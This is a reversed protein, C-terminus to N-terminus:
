QQQQQQQQMAFPPPSRSDIAWTDLESLSQAAAADGQAAALRYWRVAEARDEATFTAVGYPYHFMAGLNRQAIAYGQAAALRYWRVAEAKDQVVGEGNAFMCGLGVQAAAHGQAAALRLWRHAEAYDQAVGSGSEYCCGVVFQGFCSGAAASERALALGKGADIAVVAGTFLCRGLAGKSHVCSMAAGAAALEFARKADKAVCQRGDIMMDSLFAHSAAHQLLAAQGWSKAADSFRQQECLRQGEQFLGDALHKSVLFHRRSVVCTAHHQPYRVRWAGGFRMLRLVLLEYLAARALLTRRQKLGVDIGYVHWQQAHAQSPARCRFMVEWRQVSSRSARCYLPHATLEAVFAPDPCALSLAPHCEFRAIFAHRPHHRPMDEHGDFGDDSAALGWMIVEEVSARAEGSVRIAYYVRLDRLANVKLASKGFLVGNGHQVADQASQIHSFAIFACGLTAGTEPNTPLHVHAICASTKGCQSFVTHLVQIMKPAKATVIPLNAVIISRAEGFSDRFRAAAIHKSAEPEIEKPDTM